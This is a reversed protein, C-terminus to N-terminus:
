SNKPLFKCQIAIEKILNYYNKDTAYGADCIAKLYELADKTVLLAKHYRPNNKIFNGYDLFSQWYNNYARFYCKTLIREGNVYEHTYDLVKGAIGEGKIGFLNFSFQFTIIDIPIKKGWASEAIAQSAIISAPLNTNKKAKYAESIMKKAFLKQKINM